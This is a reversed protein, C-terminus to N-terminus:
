IDSGVLLEVLLQQREIEHQDIEARAAIENAETEAALFVDMWNGPIFYNEEWEKIEGAFISWRWNVVRSMGASLLIQDVLNKHTLDPEGIFGLLICVKMCTGDAARYAEEYERVLLHVNGSSWVKYVHERPHTIIERGLWFAVHCAKAPYNMERVAQTWASKIAILENLSTEPNIQAPSTPVIHATEVPVIATIQTLM